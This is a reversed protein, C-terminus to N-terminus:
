FEGVKKVDKGKNKLNRRFQKVFLALDDNPSQDCSENVVQSKDVTQLSVEKRKNSEGEDMDLEIEYTIFKGVLKGLRM